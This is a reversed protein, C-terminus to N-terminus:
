ESLNDYVHEICQSLTKMRRSFNVPIYEPRLGGHLMAMDDNDFRLEKFRTGPLIVKPGDWDPRLNYVANAANLVDYAVDLFQIMEEHELEQGKVYDGWEDNFFNDHQNYKDIFDDISLAFALPGFEGLVDEDTKRFTGQVTTM